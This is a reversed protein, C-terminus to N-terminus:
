GRQPMGTIKTNLSKECFVLDDDTYITATKEISVNTKM